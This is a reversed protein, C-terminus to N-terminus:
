TSGLIWISGITPIDGDKVEFNCENLTPSLSIWTPNFFQFIPLLAMNSIVLWSVRHWHDLLNVLHMWRYVFNPSCSLKHIEVTKFM